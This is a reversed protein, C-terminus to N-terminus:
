PSTVNMSHHYIFNPLASNTPAFCSYKATIRNEGPKIVPGSLFSWTTFAGNKGTPKAASYMQNNIIIDIKCNTHTANSPTSTGNVHVASGAALHAPATMRIYGEIPSVSVAFIMIIGISAALLIGVVNKM